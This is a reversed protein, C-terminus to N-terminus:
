TFRRITDFGGRTGPIFSGGNLFLVSKTATIIFGRNEFGYWDMNKKNKRKRECYFVLGHVTPVAMMLAKMLVKWDVMSNATTLVMLEVLHLVMWVVLHLVM